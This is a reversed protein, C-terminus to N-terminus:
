VGSLSPIYPEHWAAWDKGFQLLHETAQQGVTGVLM